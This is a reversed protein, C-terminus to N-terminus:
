MGRSVVPVVPSREMGAVGVRADVPSRSVFAVDVEAGVPSAMSGKWETLCCLCDIMCEVVAGSHGGGSEVGRTTWRPSSVGGGGGGPVGEPSMGWSWELWLCVGLVCPSMGGRSVVPEVPTREVGTVDVGAGVPSWGVGAVGVGAGVPRAISGKLETLCCLCDVLSVM